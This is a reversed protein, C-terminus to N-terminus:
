RGATPGAVLCDAELPELAPLDTDDYVIDRSRVTPSTAKNSMANYTLTIMRRPWPSLNATSGHLCNVNMYIVSGAAGTPAVM